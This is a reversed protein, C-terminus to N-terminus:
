QRRTVTPDLPFTSVQDQNTESERFLFAKEVCLWRESQDTLKQTESKSSHFSLWDAQARSHGKRQIPSYNRYSKLSVLCAEFLSRNYLLIRAFAEYVLSIINLKSIRISSWQILAIATISM